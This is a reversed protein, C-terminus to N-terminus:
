NTKKVLLGNAYIGEEVTGDQYTIKGKGNLIYNKFEGEYVIRDSYKSSDLLFRIDSKGKVTKKGLVLKGNAFTGEFTNGSHFIQKGNGHLEGKSFEGEETVDYSKYKKGPGELLGNVFTGEQYDGTDRFYKRGKHLAFNKFEGTQILVQDEIKGSVFDGKNFIGEVTENPRTIKGEGDLQNDYFNGEYGFGTVYTIKGPGFLYNGVFEGEYITGDETKVKGQGTLFNNVFNGTFETQDRHTLKGTAKILLVNQGPDMKGEHITGEFVSSGLKFKGTENKIQKDTFIIGTSIRQPIFDAPNSVQKIDVCVDSTKEDIGNLKTICSKNKFAYIDLNNENLTQDNIKNLIQNKLTYIDDEPDLEVQYIQDSKKKHVTITRGGLQKKLALYKAKYNLYKDKYFSEENGNFSM